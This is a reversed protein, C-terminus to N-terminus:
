RAYAELRRRLENRVAPWESAIISFVVTDRLSGDAMIRHSRLVGDQKAGLREIARRSQMNLWHTQYTVAICDLAEFAHQMLLLKSETNTGSRHASAANWTYGIELRRNPVDANALTTMGIIAGDSRRITTFPLMTGAQALALRSEIEAKMGEPRPVSTYWLNWLEGDSAAAVLGDHHDHSLPVLEVLDGTLTVPNLFAM